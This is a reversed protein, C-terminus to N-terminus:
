HGAAERQRERAAMRKRQLIAAYSQHEGKESAGLYFEKVSQDRRLEEAPGEMAVRGNDMVFGYQVISLAMVANQEALLVSLGEQKNLNQIIGFIEQVLIPALGMSPEDLLVLKPQAMLSRGIAVMQQEGGSLYGAKQRRREALRPFYQYVLELNASLSSSARSYAGTRLNEEVTLQTFLRRGEMVQFIGSRVLFAPNKGVIPSGEFLISGNTVAGREAKLLNSIAKLTTSKGAGNPGLLAVIGKEPVHLNLGHLVHIARDYCVEVGRMQLIPSM